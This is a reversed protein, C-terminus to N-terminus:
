DAIIRTFLRLETKLPNGTTPINISYLTHAVHTLSATSIMGSFNFFRLKGVLYLTIILWSYLAFFFLTDYRMVKCNQLQLRLFECNAENNTMADSNRILRRYCRAHCSRQPRRRHRESDGVVRRRGEFSRGIRSEVELRVGLRNRQTQRGFPVAVPGAM